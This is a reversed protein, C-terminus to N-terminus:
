RENVTWRRKQSTFDRQREAQGPPLPSGWLQNGKSGRRTAFPDEDFQDREESTSSPSRPMEMMATEPPQVPLHVMKPSGFALPSAAKPSATLPTSASPPPTVAAVIKSRITSPKRSPRAIYPFPLFQRCPWSFTSYIIGSALRTEFM